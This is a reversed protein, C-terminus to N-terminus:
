GRVVPLLLRSPHVADHHVSQKAKRRDSVRARAIEVKANPNCDFKPFNSSTVELRLRHGPKFVYAVDLLSISLPVIEGVSLWVECDMGNRYRARLIGEAVPACYGSPDVDVLKATFDTDPADSSIWLELSVPGAIRLAEQLVESSYVLVDDRMEVERQDLVGPSGFIPALSRCGRTPVPDSPDYVYHDAPEQTPSNRDLVGDGARTNARGQSHLFFSEQTNQPPWSAAERWQNEGMSFYRVRAVAQQVPQPANESKSAAGRLYPEFFGLVIESVGAPGAVAEPGFEREGAATPRISMYTIHDWPGLVLRHTDRVEVRPHRKLSENLDLHGQLFGDYWGGIQLVPVQIEACRAAVDVSRWFEDYRPHDLWERWFPAHEGRGDTANCDAANRDASSCLATNDWLPLERVAQWPDKAAAMLKGFAQLREAEPLRLARDWALNLAWWFNFGLEFAGGSYAWGAHYNAGTMYAACAKLHPPAAVAAQLTTVGNYSSGYIAVNGNSWPQAAAWEVTDYGDNGECHFPQWEGESAFRGRTDQVLVVYGREAALLPNLMLGGVVWADSKNYPTRHVLVPHQTKGQAAGRAADRAENECSDTPRYIDTALRVGDRMPVMVDREVTIARSM